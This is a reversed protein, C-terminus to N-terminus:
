LNRGKGRPLSFAELHGPQRTMGYGVPQMHPSDVLYKVYERVSFRPIRIDTRGVSGHQSSQPIHLYRVKACVAWANRIKRRSEAPTSTGVWLIFTLSLGSGIGCYGDKPLQNGRPSTKLCSIVQGQQCGTGRPRIPVASKSHRNTNAEQRRSYVM